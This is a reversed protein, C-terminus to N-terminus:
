NRKSFIGTKYDDIEEEDYEREKKSKSHTPEHIPTELWDFPNKVLYRKPQGLKQLWQDAVFETYKGTEDRKLGIAEVQLTEEAFAREVVVAADLIQHIKYPTAKAKLNEHIWCAFNCHLIKDRKAQENSFALGPMLGRKNIWAIAAFTTSQFISDIAISAIVREALSLTPANCFHLAWETKRKIGTLNETAHFLKHKQKECKIYKDILKCYMENHTNNAAMQLGLFCRAEPNKIETALNKILTENAIGQTTSLFALTLEILKKESYELTDWHKVDTGLFVGETKWIHDEAKKYM